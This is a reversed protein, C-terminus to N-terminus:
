SFIGTELQDAMIRFLEIMEKKMRPPLKKLMNMSFGEVINANDLSSDDIGIRYLTYKM